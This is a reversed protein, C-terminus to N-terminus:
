VVEVEYLVKPNEKLKHKKDILRKIMMKASEFNYYWDEKIWSIWAKRQVSYRYPYKFSNVDKNVEQVIRYKTM